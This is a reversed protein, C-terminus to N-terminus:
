ELHLVQKLLYDITLSSTALSIHNVKSDFEITHFDPQNQWRLCLDSSVKNVTGDGAGNVLKPSKPFSKLSPFSLSELTPLGQSRICHIEVGPWPIDQPLMEISKRWMAAGATDNMMEYIAPMDRATYNTGGISLVTTNGFVAAVPVIPAISSWTRELDYLLSRAYMGMHFANGTVVAELAEVSGGLPSGLTVWAQIYKKKWEASSRLFFHYNYTCGNSHCVIVVRKKGNLSYTEEILRTMNEFHEESEDPLQSM